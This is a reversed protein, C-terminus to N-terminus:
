SVQPHKIEDKLKRYRYFITILIFQIGGLRLSNVGIIRLISNVLKPKSAPTQIYYISVTYGYYLSHNSWKERCPDM